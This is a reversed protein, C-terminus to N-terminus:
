PATSLQYPTSPRPPAGRAVLVPIAAYTVSFLLVLFAAYSAILYAAFAAPLITSLLDYATRLFYADYALVAVLPVLSLLVGLAVRRWTAILARRQLLPQLQAVVRQSLLTHDLDVTVQDLLSAIRDVPPSTERCADCEALHATLRARRGTQDRNSDSPDM